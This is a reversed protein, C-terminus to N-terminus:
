RGNGGKPFGKHTQIGTNETELLKNVAAEAERHAQWARGADQDLYRHRQQHVKLISLLQRPPYALHVTRINTLKARFIPKHFAPPKTPLYHPKHIPKHTRTPMSFMGDNKTSSESVKAGLVEYAQWHPVFNRFSSPKLPTAMRHRHYRSSQHTLFQVIGILSYSEKMNPLYGYIRSVSDFSRTV